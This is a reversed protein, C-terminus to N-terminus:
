KLEGELNKRIIKKEKVKVYIYGILAGLLAYFILILVVALVGKASTGLNKLFPIKVILSPFGLIQIYKIWFCNFASEKGPICAFRSFSPLYNVIFFYLFSFLIGIIGGTIICEKKNEMEKTEKKKKVM